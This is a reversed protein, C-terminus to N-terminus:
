RCTFVGLGHRISRPVIVEEPDLAPVAGLNDLLFLALYFADTSDAVPLVLTRSHLKEKLESFEPLRTEPAPLMTIDFTGRSGGIQLIFCSPGHTYQCRMAYWCGSPHDGVQEFIFTSLAFLRSRTAATLPASGGPGVPFLIKPAIM